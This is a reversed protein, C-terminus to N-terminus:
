AANVELTVSEFGENDLEIHLAVVRYAADVDVYSAAGARAVLRVIDGLWVDGFVYDPHMTDLHVVPVIRPVSRWGLIADAYQQLRAPSSEDSISVIGERLGYADRSSTDVATAQANNAGKVVIKNILSGPSADEALNEVICNRAHELVISASKDTGRLPWATRFGRDADVWWDFGDALDGLDTVAQKVDREEQSDFTKSPQGSSDAGDTIAYVSAGTKALATSVINWAAVNQAISAQTYNPGVTVDSLYSGIGLWGLELSGGGQGDLTPNVTALQFVTEVADGERRVVLEHVGAELWDRRAQNSALDITGSVSGPQNLYLSIKRDALDTLNGLSVGTTRSTTIFDWAAM